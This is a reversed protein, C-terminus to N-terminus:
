FTDSGQLGCFRSPNMDELLKLEMWSIFFIKDFTFIREFNKQKKETFFAVFLRNASDRKGVSVQM